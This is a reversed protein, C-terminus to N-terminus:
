SSFVSGFVPAVELDGQGRYIESLCFITNGHDDEIKSVVPLIRKQLPRAKAGLGHELAESIPAGNDDVRRKALLLSGSHRDANRAIAM